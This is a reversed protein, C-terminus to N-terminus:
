PNAASKAPVRSFRTSDAKRMSVPLRVELTPLLPDAARDPLPPAKTGAPPSAGARTAPDAGADPSVPISAMSAKCATSPGSSPRRFATRRPAESSSASSSMLVSRSMPRSSTFLSSARVLLSASNRSRERGPRSATSSSMSRRTRTSSAFRPRKGTTQAQKM